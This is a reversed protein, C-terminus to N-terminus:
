LIERAEVPTKNKTVGAWLPGASPIKVRGAKAVHGPRAPLQRPGSSAERGM